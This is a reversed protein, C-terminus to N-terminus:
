RGSAAAAARPKAPNLTTRIVDMLENNDAPKQLFASAGAKLTRERNYQPDRATLVIVPISALQADRSCAISFWLATPSIM